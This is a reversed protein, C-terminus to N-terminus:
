YTVELIGALLVPTEPDDDIKVYMQYNGRSLTLGTGPGVLVQAYYTPDSTEPDLITVWSGAFFLSPEVAPVVIAWSVADGTPDNTSSVPVRIFQKSQSSIILDALELEASM